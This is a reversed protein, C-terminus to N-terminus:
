AVDHTNQSTIKSPPPRKGSLHCGDIFPMSRCVYRMNRIDRPVRVKGKSLGVGDRTSM